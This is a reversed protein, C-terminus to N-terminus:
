KILDRLSKYYDDSLTDRFSAKYVPFALVDLKVLSEAASENDLNLELMAQKLMTDPYPHFTALKKTYKYQTKMNMFADTQDTDVNIYNDLTFLGYYSWLTNNNTINELYTAQKNFTKQNDPADYYDVLTDFIISGQVMLYALGIIPLATITKIYVPRITAIPKDLSLFTIFGSLFYLYWLPYENMSHSLTTCLMCLIIIHEIQLSRNFLRIMAVLIGVMVILTGITGTDALLQLILNHCNTFLGSNVPTNPLTAFLSVSQKAFGNWGNGFIPYQTFTIWAKQWEFWRRGAGSDSDLRGLGSSFNNHVTFLKHIIPYFYEVAFLTFTTGVIVLMLGLFQKDRKIIYAFISIISALGFYIFVSRSASITLSFCFWLILPYFLEKKIRTSQFLYILSFIGWSLYHAYHNRQGFHGFINTTPHDSDYFILTGFYRYTGTYQIFGIVSQIIAGILLTYALLRVIYKLGYANRITNAAIAILICISMELASIYNLGVFDIQSVFLPQVLLYLAFLAVPITVFPITIQKFRSIVFVFVGISAWAVTMEAWFQPQPDYHVTNLAPFAYLLFFGLALFQKNFIADQHDQNSMRFNGHFLKFLQAIKDHNIHIQQLQEEGLFNHLTLTM